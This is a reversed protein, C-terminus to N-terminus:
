NNSLPHFCALPTDKLCKTAFDICQAPQLLLSPFNWVNHQVPSFSSSVLSFLIDVDKPSNDLRAKDVIQRIKDMQQTSSTQHKNQDLYHDVLGFRENIALQFCTLPHDPNQIKAGARILHCALEISGTHIAWHLPSWNCYDTSHIDADLSILYLAIDRHGRAVATSLASLGTKIDRANLLAMVHDDSSQSLVYKLRNIEGRSCAHHLEIQLDVKGENQFRTPNARSLHKAFLPASM